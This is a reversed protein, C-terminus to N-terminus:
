NGYSKPRFTIINSMDQPPESLERNEELGLKDFTGTEIIHDELKKLEVLAAEYADVLSPDEEIEDSLYDVISRKTYLLGIKAIALEQESYKLREKIEELQPTLESINQILGKARISIAHEACQALELFSREKNPM